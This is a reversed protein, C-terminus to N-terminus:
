SRVNRNNISIEISQALEIVDKQWFNLRKGRRTVSNFFRNRVCIQNDTRNQDDARRSRFQNCAIHEFDNRIARNQNVHRNVLATTKFRCVGRRM